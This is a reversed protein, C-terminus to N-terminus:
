WVFLRASFFTSGDTICDIGDGMLTEAASYVNFGEDRPLEISVDPATLEEHVAQATRVKEGNRSSRKGSLSSMQNGGHQQVSFGVM